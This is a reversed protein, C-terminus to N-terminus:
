FYKEKGFHAFSRKVMAEYAISISRTGFSFLRRYRLNINKFRYFFYIKRKKNLFICRCEGYYDLKDNLVSSDVCKPDTRKCWCRQRLFHCDSEFTQNSSSCVKQREDEPIECSEICECSAQNDVVVCKEGVDCKVKECLDVLKEGNEDVDLNPNIIEVHLSM